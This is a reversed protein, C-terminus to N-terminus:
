ATEVPPTPEAPRARRALHARRSLRIASAAVLVGGAGLTIVLALTGYQTVRVRLEVPQGYPIGDPTRLRTEVLVVGNAVAKAPVGIQMKSQAPIRVAPVSGISLGLRLPTLAVNVLVPQDLGNSITLPITGSKSGFTYSGPLVHVLSRLDALNSRVADLRNVRDGRGRWWTSELMLLSEDLAPVLAQPDTLVSAFNAVRSHMDRIATLYAAPLESRRVSAAYRVPLRDLEPPPAARLATLSADGLWPADGAGKVVRDLLQTPPNWYRPPAVLVTRASGAAPLEATIMATEALFRQGALLGKEPATASLIRTLTTDYLLGALPGNATRVDARGTPTFSLDLEPPLARGDLLVADMGMGKLATLSAGDAFGDGPWAVDDTVQRGLVSSAIDSGKARATVLDATLDNHQLAVVDPDGYPLALVGAGASASRLLDLWENATGAGTGDATGASGNPGAATRVQYGNGMDKASDLLAPDVVWTLAHRQGLESGAAALRGLRGDPAMQNALAEDAFTGDPLRSPVATLPWIWAFSTPKFDQKQPVWPLFTRVIAVRGFGTRHRAIVEINLVYVGFDRLTTIKALPTSVEFAAEGGAPIRGSLRVRAVVLGDRSSTRGSAVAALEGRSSLTTRSLRLRVEVNDLAEDAGARVMGTAQLTAGPVGVAPDLSSVVVTALAGAASAHPPVGLVAVLTLPAALLARLARSRRARGRRTRAPPAATM